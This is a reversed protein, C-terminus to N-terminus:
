RNSSLHGRPGLPQFRPGTWYFWAKIILKLQRQNFCISASVEFEGPLNLWPSASGDVSSHFDLVSCFVLYPPPGVSFSGFRRRDAIASCWALDHCWKRVAFRVTTLVVVGWCSLHVWRSGFRGSQLQIVLLFPLSSLQLLGELSMMVQKM